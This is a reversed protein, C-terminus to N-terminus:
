KVWGISLVYRTGFLIKSVSHEFKDPRFYIIRNFINLSEEDNCWFHGGYEANKLVINIRHHEKGEVPDTHTDIESGERYRIIYCDFPLLFTNQILLMKDYGSKQRGEQWKFYQM